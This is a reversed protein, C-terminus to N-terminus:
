EPQDTEDSTVTWLWDQPTSGDFEHLKLVARNGMDIALAFDPLGGPEGITESIVDVCHHIMGRCLERVQTRLKVRECLEAPMKDEISVHIARIRGTDSGTVRMNRKTM